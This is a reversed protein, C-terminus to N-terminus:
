LWAWTVKVRGLAPDALEAFMAPSVDLDDPQCGTCRDVVTLDISKMVGNDNRQARIKRGCLPNANPDSGKQAADFVFHSIAVIPDNDTSDIGCAGLGTGYYTLDGTYTQAGTPLPLNRTKSKHSLGVALGIILALICVFVVALIILFTRRSRGLYRKHPPLIRDFRSLLTAGAGVGCRSEKLSGKLPVDWDAGATTHAYVPPPEKPIEEKPIREITTM